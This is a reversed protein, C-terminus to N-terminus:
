ALFDPKPKTDQTSSSFYELYEQPIIADANYYALFAYNKEEITFLGTKLPKLLVYDGPNLARCEPGVSHILGYPEPAENLKSLTKFTGDALPIKINTEVFVEVFMTNALCKVKSPDFKTEAM